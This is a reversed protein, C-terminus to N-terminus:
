VDIDLSKLEDRIKKARQARIHTYIDKTTEIQAHGLLFQADKDDVNAEFLMTAYAHRLQHPTCTVGTISQYKEWMDRIQHDSMMGGQKNKFVYGTQGKQLKEYLKDVIPVIRIGADTKPQKSREEGIKHRMASRRVYIARDNFDVDEWKLAALESRRLGTYLAWFAFDGGPVDYSEKIKKIDEDSAVPREGEKLGKKLRVDRVPNSAVVGRKVALMFADNIVIRHTLATKRAMDYKDEVYELYNNIDVPTIDSAYKGKFYEKARKVAPSYSRATGEALHPETEEWYDDMMQEFTSSKEVKEEYDAIKRLVEAKTKGYVVVRKGGTMDLPLQQQYRGDSRKKM